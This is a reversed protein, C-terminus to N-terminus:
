NFTLGGRTSSSPGPRYRNAVQISGAQRARQSERVKFRLEAAELEVKFAARADKITMGLHLYEALQEEEEKSLRQNQSNIVRSTKPQHENNASREPENRTESSPPAASNENAQLDSEEEEIIAGFEDNIVKWWRGYLESPIEPHKEMFNLVYRTWSVKSSRCNRRQHAGFCNSCLKQVGRHYIRVRKGWMPLLQPIDTRLRMKISFTGNGIPDADSDSNPHIDESLQGAQEGFYNLWDLVQHEELQYNIWEIKVWRISPDPDPENNMGAGDNGARLGRIKCGLIDRKEIGKVTYRREFNFYEMHLLNRDVDIQEKLKYKVVPFTSFDFRIGHVLKIDFGLCSTFLDKAETFTLSGKFPKDNVTQIEVVIDDRMPGEPDPTRFIRNLNKKERNTAAAAASASSDRRSHM